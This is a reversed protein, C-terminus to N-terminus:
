ARSDFKLACSISHIRSPLKSDEALKEAGEEPLKGRVIKRIGDVPPWPSLYFDVDRGSFRM